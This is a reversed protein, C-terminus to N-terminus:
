GDVFLEQCQKWFFSEDPPIAVSAVSVSETRLNM